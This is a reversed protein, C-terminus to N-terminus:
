KATSKKKRISKSGLYADGPKKREYGVATLFNYFDELRGGRDKGHDIVWTLYEDHAGRNTWSEGYCLNLRQVKPLECITDAWDDLSLTGPPLQVKTEKGPTLPKQKSGPQVLEFGESSTPQDKVNQFEYAISDETSRLRKSADTMAGDTSM